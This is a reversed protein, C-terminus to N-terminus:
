ESITCVFSLKADAVKTLFLPPDLLDGSANFVLPYQVGEFRGIRLIATRVDEVPQRQSAAQLLLNTADYAHIAPFFPARKFRTQFDSEFKLYAPADSRVNISHLFELGEVSAGGLSLLPGSVSWCTAYLMAKINKKALQQCIMATDPANAIVLAADAKRWDVKSVLETFSLSPGSRFPIAEITGPFSKKLADAWSKSYSRNNLDYFLVVHRRGEAAFRDVLGAVAQGDAYHPRIFYDDLGSLADTSITPGVLLLQLRNAEPVMEEAAQSVMPGVVGIVGAAKLLQLAERASAATEGRDAVVGEIPAGNLGGRQNWEEVALLFADRGEQGIGCNRGVLGGVYGVKVPQKKQCAVVGCLIAAVFFGIVLWPRSFSFRAM